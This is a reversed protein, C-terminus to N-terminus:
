LKENWTMIVLKLLSRPAGGRASHSLEKYNNSELPGLRSGYVMDNMTATTTTTTIITSTIITTTPSWNDLDEENM